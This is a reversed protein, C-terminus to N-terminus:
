PLGIFGVDVLLLLEIHFDAEEGEEGGTSEKPRVNTSAKFHANGLGGRGGELLRVREGDKLLEIVHGTELNTIRSGIPLKIEIDKGTGCQKLNKAGNEGNDAVFEKGKEHLWRVVGDGGRGAKLHLNIEDIFAM